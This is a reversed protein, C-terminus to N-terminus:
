WEPGHWQELKSFDEMMGLNRLYTWTQEPKTHRKQRQLLKIDKTALWLDVAGTHCFSYVTYNPNLEYYGKSKVIPKINKYFYHEGVRDPGPQFEKVMRAGSVKRKKPKGEVVMRIFPLATFEDYSIEREVPDSILYRNVISFVFYHDPYALIGSAEIIAAFRENIGVYKEIKTKADRSLFLIKRENMRIHGVRLECLEDPRALSYYMFQIFFIVQYKNLARLDDIIGRIQDSNYYAHSRTETRLMPFSAVPNKGHWMKNDHNILTSCVAHMVTRANNITKNSNGRTKALYEFWKLLTPQTLQKIRYDEATKESYGLSKFFDIWTVYTNQYGEITGPEVKEFETKWGKVYEFAKKLSYNVLSINLEAIEEKPESEAILDNKLWYNIEDIMQDAFRQREDLTHLANLDEKLVRKRALEQTTIDFVYFIIYWEKTIDVIGNEDPPPFLEAPRYPYGSVSKSPPGPKGKRKTGRKAAVQTVHVFSFPNGNSFVGNIQTPTGPNSSAFQLSLNLGVVIRKYFIPSARQIFKQGPTKAAVSLAKIL